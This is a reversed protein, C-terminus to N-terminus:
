PALGAAVASPVPTAPDGDLAAVIEPEIRDLAFPLSLVSGFSLAGSLLDGAFLERGERHAALTLRMPMSVLDGARAEASIWVLLDADIPSLDEPSLTAYFGNIEQLTAYGPPTAFGLEAFVRSRADEGMFVGTQGGDHWAAAVTQGAWDPHRDRLAAFKAEVGAILEAAQVERGTARGLIEVEAQWSTGYTSTGAPTLIVPAIRSLLLYETQSMGSGIAFILDPKLSAIVEASSEGRMVVPTEGKLYPQAWPWVGSDYEGYWYRLGVPVLGLALITDQTAYGLSVIRSAPRELVTEGYAHPFRLGSGTGNTGTTDARAPTALIAPLIAPMALGSVCAAGRSVFTRRTIPSHRTMANGKQPAPCAGPM